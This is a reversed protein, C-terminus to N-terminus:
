AASGVEIQDTTNSDIHQAMGMRGQGLRDAGLGALYDMAAVIEVIFRLGPQGGPQSSKGAQGSSAKKETVAPSLNIFSGQLQGARKEIMLALRAFLNNSCFHGEMAAGQGRGSGSALGLVALLKSGQRIAEDM